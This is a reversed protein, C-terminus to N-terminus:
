KMLNRRGNTKRNKAYTRTAKIPDIRRHPGTGRKTVKRM